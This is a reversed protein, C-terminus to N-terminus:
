LSSWWCTVHSNLLVVRARCVTEPLVCLSSIHLMYTMTLLLAHTGCATQPGRTMDTCAPGKAQVRGRVRRVM